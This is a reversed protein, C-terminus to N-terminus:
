ALKQERGFPAGLTRLGRHYPLVLRLPWVIHPAAPWLVEREALPECGNTGGGIVFIDHIRTSDL